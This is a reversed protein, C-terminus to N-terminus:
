ATSYAPAATRATTARERAAAVQEDTVVDADGADAAPSPHELSGCVPCAEGETLLSALAAATGAHQQTVLDEWAAVAADAAGHALREDSEAQELATALQALVSQAQALEAATEVLGTGKPVEVERDDIKVKVMDTM